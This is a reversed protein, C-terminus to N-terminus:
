LAHIEFALTSIRLTRNGSWDPTLHPRVFKPGLVLKRRSITHMYFKVRKIFARTWCM